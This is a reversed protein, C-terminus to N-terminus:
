GQRTSTVQEINGALLDSTLRRLWNTRQEVNTSAATANCLVIM